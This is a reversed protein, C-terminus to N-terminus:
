YVTNTNKVSKVAIMQVIKLAEEYMWEDFLQQIDALHWVGNLASLTCRPVFYVFGLGM